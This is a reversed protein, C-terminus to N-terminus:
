VKIKQNKELCFDIMLVFILIEIFGFALDPTPSFLTSGASHSILYLFFAVSALWGSIKKGREMLFFLMLMFIILAGVEFGKPFYPFFQLLSLFGFYSQNYALHSHINGVGPIIPYENLWRIVQLHYAATDYNTSIKIVRLAWYSLILFLIFTIKQHKKFFSKVKEKNNIVSGAGLLGICGFLLSVLWNIPLIFNLLEIFFSVSVFGIILNSSFSPKTISLVRSTMAGWGFLVFLCFFSFSLVSIINLLSIM